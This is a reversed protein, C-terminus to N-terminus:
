VDLRNIVESAREEDPTPFMQFQHRREIEREQVPSNQIKEATENAAQMERENRDTM